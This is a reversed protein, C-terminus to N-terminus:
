DVERVIAIVVDGVGVFHVFQVIVCKCQELLELSCLINLGIEDVFGFILRVESGYATGIM